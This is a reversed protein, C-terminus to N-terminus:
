MLSFKDFTAKVTKAFNFRSFGREILNEYFEDIKKITQENLNFLEGSPINNEKCIGYIVFFYQPIRYGYDVNFDINKINLTNILSLVSSKSPFNTIANKEAFCYLYISTLVTLNWAFLMKESIKDQSLTQFISYYRFLTETERLSLPRVRLLDAIQEKMLHCSATQETAKDALGKWHSESTHTITYGDPKFTEPLTLTYKIFKDLYSQSNVSHGYIHNVSAKLQNLNTILIFYVNEIDFIHKIKELMDISFTPRCRDLEDIIIIIQNDTSLERIKDKLANVNSEADIHEQILNEMAGDIAADSTDKMAQQFDEAVSGAEQKLLWSAVAKLATSGTFKLAPIAKQILAKQKPQPLAGAIAATVSLLPDECHDEKFADIYIVKKEPYTETIYDLLKLSFETKGTGWNGDIVTPSIDMSSDILKTLNEAIVKRKYEDRVNFTLGM